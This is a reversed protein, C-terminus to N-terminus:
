NGFGFAELAKRAEEAVREDDSSYSGNHSHNATGFESEWIEITPEPPPVYCSSYEVPESGAIFPLTEGRHQGTCSEGMLEGTTMDVPFEFVNTPQPVNLSTLPLDKMIDMWVRMAGNSGSLGTKKNSDNGVWVVNLYNGSFGAFWSDRYDDTTGTKGAINLEAPIKQQLNRATGRRVVEQMAKFTLYYPEDSIVKISEMPFRAVPNDEADTVSNIVRLPMRYGGNALSEYIQAVELPSMTVSGLAISPYLPLDQRAGLDQLRGVFDHVGIDLVVRATPINYSHVLADILAVSGQNKHSYNKPKWVEGAVKYVLPSDDIPTALNYKTPYELASMYVVPKLLSGPQRKAQYARNFGHRQPDRDGVIAVVEATSTNVIVSAAQLFDKKLRKRKELVPLATAVSREAEDQIIPDLTTFVNLGAALTDSDYEENIRKKVLQLFSFYRDKKKREITPLTDLPLAKALKADEASILNQGVMVDLILARRKKAFEPHRFPNARSPERVLAVLTAIQHVGLQSLPKGFYHEAALGFGHIARSGDQGLFIENLYGELIQEKSFNKELTLAMLAEKIKRSLKRESSLYHNKVFQQTLTSAGQSAQGSKIATIVARALGKPDIGPHSYFRRDETAIITDVLVEPTNDLNILLRDQGHKPYMSGILLPEIRTIAVPQLTKMDLIESIKGDILTLRLLQEPEKADWFGFGNKYILVHKGDIHYTGPEPVAPTKLYDLYNLETTLDQLKLPKGAYLELPRAYVRSPLEWLAGSMEADNLKYQRSLEKSYLWLGFCTILFVALGFYLCLYFLKAILPQKKRDIKQEARAKKTKKNPKASATQKATKSTAKPATKKKKRFPLLSVM